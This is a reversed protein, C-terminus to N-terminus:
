SLDSKDRLNRPQCDNALVNAFSGTFLWAVQAVERISYELIEGCRHLLLKDVLSPIVVLLSAHPM